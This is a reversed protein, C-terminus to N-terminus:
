EQTALIIEQELNSFIDVGAQLSDILIPLQSANFTPEQRIKDLDSGFARTMQGMYHDSFKPKSAPKKIREDEEEESPSQEDESMAQVDDEDNDNDDGDEEEEEEEDDSGQELERVIDDLGSPDMEEDLNDFLGEAHDLCDLCGM